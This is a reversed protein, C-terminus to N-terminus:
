KINIPRTINFASGPLWRCHATMLAHISIDKDFVISSNMIEPDDDLNQGESTYQYYCPATFNTVSHADYYHLNIDDMTHVHYKNNTMNILTNEQVIIYDIDDVSYLVNESFEVYNHCSIISYKTYFIRTAKVKYFVMPGELHLFANSISILDSKSEIGHFLTNVIVISNQQISKTMRILESQLRNYKFICGTLKINLEGNMSLLRDVKNYKFVCNSFTIQNHRENLGLSSTIYFLHSGSNFKEVICQNFHIFNGFANATQLVEFLTSTTNIAVFKANYFEIEIKYSKQYLYIMIWSDYYTINNSYSPFHHSEIILKNHIDDVDM